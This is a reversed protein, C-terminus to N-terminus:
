IRETSLDVEVFTARPGPDPIPDVLPEDPGENTHVAGQVEVAFQVSGAALTRLMDNPIEDYREGLWDSATAFGGLSSNQVVAGRVAAAYREALNFTSERDQGAVVCGVSVAWRAIVLGGRKEPETLIGPAVIVCSPMQHEEFKGEPLDLASVWSRFLPVENPDIGEARAIEAIYTPFWLKLHSEMAKRVNRGTVIPGFINDESM